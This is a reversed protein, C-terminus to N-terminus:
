RTKRQQRNTRSKKLSDASSKAENFLNQNLEEREPSQMQRNEQEENQHNQQTEQRSKELESKRYNGIKVVIERSYESAPFARNLTDYAAAAKNNDKLKNESIWGAAYLAKPALPSTKHNYYIKWFESIAQHYKGNKLLEEANMYLSEAPDKQKQYQEKGLEIAAANAPDTYPHEFYVNELTKIYSSSDGISKYYLATSYKVYPLLDNNRFNSIIIKYYYYASDPRELELFFLNALEFYNRVLLSNTSDIGIKPMVPLPITKLEEKQDTTRTTSTEESSQRDRRRQSAVSIQSQEAPQQARRLKLISDIKKNENAIFISDAIFKAPDTLYISDTKLKRLDSKIKEYKNLSINKQRAITRLNEPANSNATLQYYRNAASLNAEHKEYIQAIYFKAINSSQSNRFSTDVKIFQEKAEAIRKEQLYSKALELELEAFNQKYKDKSLMNKIISEAEAYSGLLYYVRAQQLESQFQLNFDKSLAAANAFSNKASEFDGTEIELNGKRFFILARLEINFVSDKVLALLNLTEESSKYKFYYAITTAFAEDVVDKNNQKIALLKAASIDALGEELIQLQLKCKGKFLIAEALFKSNPYNAELEAFKRASQLYNRQYYYSKGILLLANEVFNSKNHFQLIKSCKEIVKNFSQLTQTSPNPEDLSFIDTKQKLLNTETEEYLTSANYFLNFYANFDYWLSCSNFFFSALATLVFSFFFFIYKSKYRKKALKKPAFVYLKRSIIFLSKAMALKDQKQRKSFQM